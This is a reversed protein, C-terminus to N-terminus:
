VSRHECTGSEDGVRYEISATGNIGAVATETVTERDRCSARGIENIAVTGNDPQTVTLTGDTPIGSDNDLVDIVVPTDEPTSVTDDVLACTQLSGVPVTLIGADGPGSADCVTYEFSDTGNFGADPT